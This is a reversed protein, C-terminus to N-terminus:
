RPRQQLSIHPLAIFAMNTFALSEQSLIMLLGSSTEYSSLLHIHNSGWSMSCFGILTNSIFLLHWAFM